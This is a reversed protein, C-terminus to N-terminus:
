AAPMRRLSEALKDLVAALTPKVADRGPDFCFERPVDILLEAVSARTIRVPTGRFWDELWAQEVSLAGGAQGPTPPPREAAAPAAPRTPAVSDCGVLGKPWCCGWCAAGPV